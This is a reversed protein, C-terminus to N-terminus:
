SQFEDVVRRCLEGLAAALWEFDGRELYVQGSLRVWLWPGHPFVPVFTRYEDMLGRHIRALARLADQESLTVWPALEADAGVNSNVDAATAIAIPLRVTTMACKRMRSEEGEKLDPEQLVSTGLAQAVIDAGENALRCCYSMIADEGGCVEARFKLAAPVCMYASDDTTGVFEFLQEFPSQTSPANADSLTSVGTEPSDPSPIFSWSTPLTTRLFHQNRKPVYLVACSRPTYLWKHCNSVLFDPQLEQMNLPIHGIGHAGDIISLMGLERCVTTFREFPFRVGPNSVILDFVAARVNLSGVERAHQVVDRFRRELEVESIPYQFRVKRPQLSTHEHLSVLGKEVAGYIPEFYIVADKPQFALNYLVTAVGTTANKVFVCEDRPANLIRAVAERSETLYDHQHRRIYPDPQADAKNMFSRQVDRVSTPHAGFSGHNLNKFAPDFLWHKLM